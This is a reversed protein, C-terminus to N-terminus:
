LRSSETQRREPAKLGALHEGFARLVPMFREVQDGVVHADTKLVISPAATMLKEARFPGVKDDLFMSLGMLIGLSVDDPAKPDALVDHLQELLAYAVISTREITDDQTIDKAM